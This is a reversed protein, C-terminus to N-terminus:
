ESLAASLTEFLDTAAEPVPLGSVQGDGVELLWWKDNEDISLDVSVFPSEVCSAIRDLLERPPSKIQNAESSRPWCGVVNGNVVFARYEYAPLGIPLLPVYEKFIIGGVISEAQLERFRKIVKIANAHDTSDPIYCAESWYGSAQSKVWDKIVIGGGAFASLTEDIKSENDLDALLVFETKPTFKKLPVTSNPGHHCAVYQEPSVLPQIGKAKLALYLQTYAEAQLMWGRYILSGADSIRAPKLAADPAIRHDLEDHDIVIVEFGAARACAAEIEYEPEVKRPNLPDACFAAYMM